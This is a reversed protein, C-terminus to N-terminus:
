NVTVPFAQSCKGLICASVDGTGASSPNVSIELPGVGSGTGSLVGILTFTATTPTSCEGTIDNGGQDLPIAKYNQSSGHTFSGPGSIQVDQIPIGCLTAPPSPSAGNGGGGGNNIQAVYVTTPNTTHDFLSCAMVGAVAVALAFVSLTGRFQKLGMQIKM